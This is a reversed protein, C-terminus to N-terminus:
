GLGWFEVYLKKTCNMYCSSQSILSPIHINMIFCWFNRMTTFEKCLSIHAKWFLLCFKDAPIFILLSCSNKGFIEESVEHNKWKVKEFIHLVLILAAHYKALWLCDVTFSLFPFLSKWWTWIWRPMANDWRHLVNYM